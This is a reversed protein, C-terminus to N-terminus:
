RHSRKQRPRRSPTKPLVELVNVGGVTPPNESQGPLSVVGTPPLPIDLDAVFIEKFQALRSALSKHSSDSMVSNAAKGIIAQVRPLGKLKKVKVDCDAELKSITILNQFKLESQIEFLTQMAFVQFLAEQQHAKKQEAAWIPAKRDTEAQLALQKEAKTM